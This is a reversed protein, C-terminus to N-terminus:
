RKATALLLTRLVKASVISSVHTPDWHPSLEMVDFGTVQCSRFAALWDQLLQFTVGGPEPTGTGPLISPDLVDLDVTVYVPRDAVWKVIEEPRTESSRLLGHSRSFVYEERTGSRQGVQLIRSPLMFDCVRRMVTAHSLSVGLYHNRLDMHADFQVVVLDKNYLHAAKILPLTLLHEGGLAAPIQRSEYVQCAMQYILDLSKDRDGPPLILDGADYYRVDELDRDLVPCYTEIGDSVARIAPPGFRTGPRFSCTGDYPMGFIVLEARDPSHQAGMFPTVPTLDASYKSSLPTNNDPFLPM